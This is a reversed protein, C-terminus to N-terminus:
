RARAVAENTDGGPFTQPVRITLPSCSRPNSASPADLAPHASVASLDRAPAPGDQVRDRWGLLASRAAGPVGGDLVCALTWQHGRWRDLARPAADPDVTWGGCLVARPFLRDVTARQCRRDLIGLGMLVYSAAAIFALAVGLCMISRELGTSDDPTEM